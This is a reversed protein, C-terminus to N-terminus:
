AVFNTAFLLFMFVLFLVVLVVVIALVTWMTKRNTGAPLPM